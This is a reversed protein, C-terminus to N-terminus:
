ADNPHIGSEGLWGLVAANFEEPKAVMIWHGTPFPVV